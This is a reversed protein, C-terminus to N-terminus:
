ALFSRVAKWLNVGNRRGSPTPVFDSWVGDEASKEKRCRGEKLSLFRQTHRGSSEEARRLCLALAINRSDLRSPQLPLVGEFVKFSDSHSLSSSQLGNRPREQCGKRAKLM